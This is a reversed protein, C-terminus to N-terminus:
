RSMEKRLLVKENGNTEWQMQIAAVSMEPKIERGRRRKKKRGQLFVLHVIKEIM